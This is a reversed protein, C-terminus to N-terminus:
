QLPAWYNAFGVQVTGAIVVTLNPYNEFYTQANGPAVLNPNAGIAMAYESTNSPPSWAGPGTVPIYMTVSQTFPGPYAPYPPGAIFDSNSPNPAQGYWGVATYYSASGGFTVVCYPNGDPSAIAGLPSSASGSAYQGIIAGSLSWGTSSTSCAQTYPVQASATSAFLALSLALLFRRM